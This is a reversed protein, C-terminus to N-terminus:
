AGPAPKLGSLRRPPAEPEAKPWPEPRAEPALGAAELVPALHRPDGWVSVYVEPPFGNALHEPVLDIIRVRLADGHALSPAVIEEALPGLHGLLAPRRRPILGLLPRRVMAFVGVRGDTLRDLWAADGIALGTRAVHVTLGEVPAKHILPLKADSM